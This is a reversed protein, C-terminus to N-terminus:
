YVFPILKSTNAAYATFADGYRRALYADLMPINLFVFLCLMIAPISMAWLSGTVCAFGLFLVVDGFYNIHMSYRFMGETYLKGKNEPRLKWLKRQYESGTNIFSGVAYLAVGVWTLVGAPAPNTGGLYAMVSHIIFVWVGITTAEGWPITRNVMVFNTALFRLLYVTSLAVLLWARAPQPGHLDWQFRGNLDNWGGLVFWAAAALGLTNLATAFLKPGLSHHYTGYM